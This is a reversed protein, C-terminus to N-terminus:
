SQDVIVRGAARRVVEAAVEEHAGDVGNASGPLVILDAGCSRATELIGGAASRTAVLRREARLAHREVIAEGLQLAQEGRAMADADPQDLPQCRPVRLMHMLVIDAHQAVGLRCALEVARASRADDDVAVAILRWGALAREGEVMASSQRPSLTSALPGVDAALMSLFAHMAGLAQIGRAPRVLTARSIREALAAGRGRDTRQPDIVLTPVDLQPALAALSASSLLRRVRESSDGDASGRWAGALAEADTAHVGYEQLLSLPDASALAGAPPDLPPVLNFILGLVREPALVAAQAVTYAADAVGYLVARRVGAADAVRWLDAARERWDGTGARATSAGAGRQDFTLLRAQTAVATLFQQQGAADRLGSLTVGFSLPMVLALGRGPRDEFALAGGEVPAM